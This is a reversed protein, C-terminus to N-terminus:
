LDKKNNIRDMFTDLNLKHMNTLKDFECIEATTSGFVRFFQTHRHDQTIKCLQKIWNGTYTPNATPPRYFETGAYLNNFLNDPTPGMDFGLLYVRRHGDMAAIGAAVPGSSFGFYPKPIEVAGLNPIPRRTYFKHKASYGSEQIQAAIPRDTAILVDPVCERYLANCGYIKGCQSLATTVISKRSIGNGLVFAIAM